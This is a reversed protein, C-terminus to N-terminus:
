STSWGKCKWDGPKGMKGPLGGGGKVVKKKKSSKTSKSLKKM